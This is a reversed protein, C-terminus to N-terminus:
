NECVLLVNCDGDLHRADVARFRKRLTNTLNELTYWPFKQPESPYVNDQDVLSFELIVWRNSFIAVGEVIQEFNLKKRLVIGPLLGMALVLDCRLRETAAISSHGSIGRSPTPDTFDM